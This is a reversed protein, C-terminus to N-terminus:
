SILKNHQSLLEQSKRSALIYKNLNNIVYRINEQKDKVTKNLEKCLEIYDLLDVVTMTPFLEALRKITEYKIVEKNM